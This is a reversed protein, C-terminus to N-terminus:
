EKNWDIIESNFMPGDKCVRYKKENENEDFGNVTCGLYVGIGCAMRKEVIVNHEINYKNCIINIKKMMINPGCSFTLINKTSNRHRRSLYSEYYDTIFGIKKNIEDTLISKSNEFALNIDNRFLGIDLLEDIFLKRIEDYFLFEPDKIGIFVRIKINKLKKLNQCLFILPSMGIGGGVLHIEKIKDLNNFNFSKGLPGTVNIIDGKKLQSLEETGSGVIKYLIKFINSYKYYIGFPRKLYSNKLKIMIFQPSKIEKLDESIFWLFYCNKNIKINKLIESKCEIIKGKGNNM